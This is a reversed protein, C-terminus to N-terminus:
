ALEATAPVGRTAWILYSALPVIILDLCVHFISFPNHQVFFFRQLGLLGGVTPFIAASLLALRSGRFVGVAVAILGYLAGFGAAGLVPGGTGYVALQSVHTIASLALVGVLVSRLRVHPGERLSSRTM